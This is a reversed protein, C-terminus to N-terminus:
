PLSGTQTRGADLWGRRGSGQRYGPGPEGGRSSSSGGRHSLLVLQDNGLDTKTGHHQSNHCFVSDLTPTTTRFDRNRLGSTQCVVKENLKIKLNLWKSVSM